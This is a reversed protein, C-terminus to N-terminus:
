LSDLTTQYQNKLQMLLRFLKATLSIFYQLSFEFNNYKGANQPEEKVCTYLSSMKEILEHYRTCESTFADQIKTYQKIQQVFEKAKNTIEKDIGTMEAVKIGYNQVKSEKRASKDESAKYSFQLKDDIQNVMLSMHKVKSPYLSIMQTLEYFHTAILALSSSEVLYECLSWLLSLGEMSSTAKGYEDMLVLTKRSCNRAIFAAEKCQKSFAGMNNEIDDNNGLNTLIRDLLPFHAYSAPVYCGIHAMLTLVGIQSLYVSKGSANPGTLIQLCYANSLFVDNPIFAPVCIKELMPHRGNMVAIPGESSFQPRVTEENLTVYHSFSLLLDLLAISESVRHMWSINNRVEILLQEIVRGTQIIISSFADKRREELSILTETSCSFKKGSKVRQIFLEPIENESSAQLSFHYGRM